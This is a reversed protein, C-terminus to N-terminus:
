VDDTNYIKCMQSTNKKLDLINAKKELQGQMDKLLDKAENAGELSKLNRNTM